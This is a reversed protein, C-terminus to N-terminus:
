EEMMKELDKNLEDIICNNIFETIYDNDAIRTAVADVDIKDLMEETYDEYELNDKYNEIWMEIEPKLYEEFTNM